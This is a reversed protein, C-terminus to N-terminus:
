YLFMLERYKPLPWSKDDVLSELMDAHSRVEEFLPKLKYYFDISIKAEDHTAKIENFTQIMTKTSSMLGNLHESITQLHNKTGTSQSSLGVSALGQINSILSNQYEIVSPIIQTNVIEVMVKYEIEIQKIYEEVYVNYRSIVEKETFIGNKVFVDIAKQKTYELLAEGTSRINALGRKAAEAVWDDSYGNGNFIIQESAILTSRLVTKVAEMTAIGKSKLMDVESKFVKLQNAVITNLVTMPHSVNVSSGVARFEFRNGTFPMPSTRNRDTNDKNINAVKPVNLVLEDSKKKFQDLTNNKFHGLIEDLFEGIYVSIIAPPAENAGLRHENGANAISARLLGSHDNVSKLFNVLFTLFQLNNEPTHGPNFLNEGTNTALSWNNHKGSGNVGAYPKEHLLARLKHRKAIKDIINMLLSNHDAAINVSEFYPACEFQMPAVENHRTTIPIGMMLCDDEFDHMFDVVREPITGFYHDELQQEKAPPNGFLSRGSMMIDPRANYLTEDILFYEQEWGLTPYVKTAENSFYKLVGLAANNVLHISKLLPTKLDLSEGNYSVFIAPICLTKGHSSELIFAFSSPDWVTYSRATHTSRLGGSPFSSGDPEQQILISGNFSEIANSSKDLRFFSDHKEATKGTLPQFWHTYHTAGNDIAWNKMGLAIMEATKPNIREGSEFAEMLSEYADRMVYKKIATSGFVLKGFYESIPQGVTDSLFRKDIFNENVKTITDKRM